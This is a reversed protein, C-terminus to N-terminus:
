GLLVFACVCILKMCRSISGFVSTSREVNLLFYQFIHVKLVIPLPLLDLLNHLCFIESLLQHFDENRLICLLVSLDLVIYCFRVDNRYFIYQQVDGVNTSVDLMDLGRSRLSM